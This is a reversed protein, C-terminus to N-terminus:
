GASFHLVKGLHTKDHIDRSRQASSASTLVLACRPLLCCPSFYKSLFSIGYASRLVALLLYARLCPLFEASDPSSM